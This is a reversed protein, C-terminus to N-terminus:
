GRRDIGLPDATSTSVTRPWVAPQARAAPRADFGPQRSGRDARLKARAGIRWRPKGRFAMRDAQLRAQPRRLGERLRGERRAQQGLLPADGKQGPTTPWIAEWYWSYRMKGNKLKYGSAIRCVGVVGTQNNRRHIASFEKRTMPPYKRILEDRYREALQLAKRKGGCKRDAFNKVHMKGRRRLSVRWAATNIFMIDIRSIGYMTM